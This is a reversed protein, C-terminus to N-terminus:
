GQVSLLSTSLRTASSSLALGAQVQLAAAAALTRLEQRRAVPHALTTALEAEELPLAAPQRYTTQAAAAVPMVSLRDRSTTLYEQAVTAPDFAGLDALGIDDVRHLLVGRDDTAFAVAPDDIWPHDEAAVAV